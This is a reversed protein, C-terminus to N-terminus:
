LTVVRYLIFIDIESNGATPDGSEVTLNIAANELLAHKDEGDVPVFKTYTQATVALASTNRMQEHNGGAVEILMDTNTAYAVPTGDDWKVNVFADVVSIATGAGTAAILEVPTSNLTLVDATAITVVTCLTECFFTSRLTTLDTTKTENDTTNLIIKAGGAIESTTASPLQSISTM